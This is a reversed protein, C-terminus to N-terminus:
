SRLLVELVAPSCFRRNYTGFPALAELVTIAVLQEVLKNTRGYPL